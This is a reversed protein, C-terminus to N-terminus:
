TNTNTTKITAQTAAELIAEPVPSELSWAASVDALKLAIQVAKSRIKMETKPVM